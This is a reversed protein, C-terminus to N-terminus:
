VVLSLTRFLTIAIRLVKQFQYWDRATQILFANRYSEYWGSQVMKVVSAKTYPYLEPPYPGPSLSRGGISLCVLTFFVNGKRLKTRSLHHKKVTPVRTM